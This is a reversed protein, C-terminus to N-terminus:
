HYSSDAPHRLDNGDFCCSKASRIVLEHWLQKNAFYDVCQQIRSNESKVHNCAKCYQLDAHCVGSLGNSLLCKNLAETSLGCWLGGMQTARAM